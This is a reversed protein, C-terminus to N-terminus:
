RGIFKPQRKQLFADIAEARDATSELREMLDAEYSGVDGISPTSVANVIMKTMRIGLPARTAIAAILEHSARMLETRPVVKNVLGLSLAEQASVVRGTMILEKARAPGILHVLRPTCGWPFFIGVNTEPVGLSAEKAAIRFDCALALAFGGGLAVGNLAAITVQDLDDFCRMFRRAFKQRRRGYAIFHNGGQKVVQAHEGLDVGSSFARGSGTIIVFKTNEDDRSEEIIQLIELLMQNSMANLKDPCNLTITTVQETKDLIVTKYEM